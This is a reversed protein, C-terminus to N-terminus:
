ELIWDGADTRVARKTKAATPTAAGFRALNDERSTTCARFDASALSGLRTFTNTYRITAAAGNTVISDIGNLAYSGCPFSITDM